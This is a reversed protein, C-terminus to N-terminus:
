WYREFHINGDPHEHDRVVFGQRQLKQEAEDIMAPNGCLFIHCQQPSLPAAVLQEYRDPELIEHVRGRLGPWPSGKPERTVTPLYTLAPDEESLQKLSDFYALDRVHRCGDLLVFRSWIGSDRYTYYMSVFPALGTGTGVMVLDQGKPVRDLTFTGKIREDMFLRDGAKMPWLLSTLRGHEVHVLYFDLYGTETAPSAISYARRILKTGRRAKRARPSNPPPDKANPDILGLTAFQGPQFDMVRGSDPRVRFIALAEHLDIREILTANYPDTQAQEEM